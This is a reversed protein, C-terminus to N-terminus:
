GGSKEIENTKRQKQTKAQKKKGMKIAEMKQSTTWLFFSEFTVDSM